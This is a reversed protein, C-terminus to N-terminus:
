GKAGTEESAMELEGAWMDRKAKKAEQEVDM